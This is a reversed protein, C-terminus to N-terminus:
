WNPVAANPGASPLGLTCALTTGATSAMSGAAGGATGAAPVVVSPQEGNSLAAATAPLMASMSRPNQPKATLARFALAAPATPTMM